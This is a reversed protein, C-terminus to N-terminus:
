THIIKNMYICAECAHMRLVLLFQSSFTKMEQINIKISSKTAERFHVFSRLADFLCNCTFMFHRVTMKTKKKKKKIIKKTQTIITEEEEEDEDDGDIEYHKTVMKKGGQNKNMTGNLQNLQFMQTPGEVVEVGEGAFTDAM